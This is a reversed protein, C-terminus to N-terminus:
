KGGELAEKAVVKVWDRFDNPHVSVNIEEDSQNLKELAKRLRSNEAMLEDIRKSYTAEMGAYYGHGMFRPSHDNIGHNKSASESM